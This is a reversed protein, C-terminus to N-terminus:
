GARDGLRRRTEDDLVGTATLREAQQFLRVARRTVPDYIDDVGGAYYGLNRLRVKVGRVTQLEPLKGFLLPMEVVEDPLDLVVVGATASPSIEAELLGDAGTRGPTQRVGDITLEYPQNCYPAGQPDRVYVRIKHPTKDSSQLKELEPPPPKGTPDGDLNIVSSRLRASADLELSAGDAVVSVKEGVLEVDGAVRLFAAKCEQTLESTAHLQLRSAAAYIREEDLTLVTDGMRLQIGEEDIEVACKGVEITLAKVAKLHISEGSALTLGGLARLRYDGGEDTEDSGVNVFAHGGIALQSDGTIRERRAGAVVREEDGGLRETLSGGVTRRVAGGVWQSLAGGVSEERAGEVRELSDGLIACESAGGVATRSAGDVTTSRDGGIRLSSDGLVVVSRDRDVRQELDNRAHLVMDRQAHVRVVEQGALDEFSLENFGESKPTSKTRIGSRTMGAPMGFPAPNAQNPACGIIVPRDTDGGMFSVLVEMGVRPVFQTGFGAGSWPQMVRIWCSSREDRRGDRDWHFQVKVRGHADAYIEENTPGVVTASELVQTLRRREVLTGAFLATPTCEIATEFLPRDGGVGEVHGHHRARVVTWERNLEGNPHDELLFTHGPALRRSNSTGRAVIARSRAQRLRRTAQETSAEVEEYESHHEYLELVTPARVAPLAASARAEFTPRQFDYGSLSVATPRVAQSSSFTSIAEGAVVHTSAERFLLSRSGWIPLLQNPEDAFVVAHEPLGEMGDAFFFSLGQEAALRAVFDYDTEEYQVCYAVAQRPRALRMVSPIGVEGLVAEIIQPISKDQYIRSGKRHKLLGMRPVLRLQFLAQSPAGKAHGVRAVVGHVMRQGGGTPGLVLSASEGLTTQVLQPLDHSTAVVLDYCYLKSLEERARHSVVTLEAEGGGVRLEYASAGVTM